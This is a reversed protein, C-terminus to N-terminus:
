EHDALRRGRRPAQARRGIAALAVGAVRRAWTRLGQTRRPQALRAMRHRDTQNQLDQAHRRVLDGYMLPNMRVVRNEDSRCPASARRARARVTAASLHRSM